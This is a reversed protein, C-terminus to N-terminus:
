ISLYISLYISLDISLYISLDISRYILLDISRYISLDISRYISRYISLYISLDIPLYISLYISRSWNYIYIINLFRKYKYLSSICIIIYIYISFSYVHYCPFCMSSYVIDQWRVSMSGWFGDPRQSNSQSWRFIISQNNLDEKIYLIYVYM